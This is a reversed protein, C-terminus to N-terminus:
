FRLNNLTSSHISTIRNALAAISHNATGPSESLIQGSIPIDILIMSIKKHVEMDGESTKVFTGDATSLMPKSFKIGYEWSNNIIDTKFMKEIPPFFPQINDIKWHQSVQSRLEKLNPYKHVAMPISLHKNEKKKAM